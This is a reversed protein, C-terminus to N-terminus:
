GCHGLQLRFSFVDELKFGEIHGFEAEPHRHQVPTVAFSSLGRSAGFGFGRPEKSPNIM